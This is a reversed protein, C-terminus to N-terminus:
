PCEFFHGTLESKKVDLNERNNNLKPVSIESVSNKFGFAALYLNGCDFM